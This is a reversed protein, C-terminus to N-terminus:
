LRVRRADPEVADLIRRAAEHDSIEWTYSALSIISRGKAGDTKWDCSITCFWVTPAKRNRQLLLCPWDARDQRTDLAEKLIAYEYWLPTGIRPAQFIARRYGMAALAMALTDRSMRAHENAVEIMSPPPLPDYISRRSM